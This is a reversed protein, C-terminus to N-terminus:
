AIIKSTGGAFGIITEMETNHVYVNDQLDLCIGRPSFSPDKWGYGLSRIFGGKESYVQIRGNERDEILINSKSDVAFGEFPELNYVTVGRGFQSGIEDSAKGTKVSVVEEVKLSGFAFADNILLCSSIVTIMVMTYKFIYKTLHKMLGGKERAIKLFSVRGGPRSIM